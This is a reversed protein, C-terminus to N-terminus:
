FIFALWNHLVARLAVTLVGCHVCACVCAAYMDICVCVIPLGTSFFYQLMMCPPNLITPLDASHSPSYLKFGNVCCGPFCMKCCLHRLVVKGVVDIHQVGSFCKM